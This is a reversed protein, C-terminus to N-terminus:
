HLQTDAALKPLFATLPAFMASCGATAILPCKFMMQLAKPRNSIDCKLEREFTKQEIEVKTSVSQFLPGKLSRM